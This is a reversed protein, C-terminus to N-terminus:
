SEYLVDMKMRHLKDYMREFMKEISRAADPHIKYDYELTAFEYRFWDLETLSEYECRDSYYM